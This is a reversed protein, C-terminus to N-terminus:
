SDLEALQNLNLVEVKFYYESSLIHRFYYSYHEIEVMRLDVPAQLEVDFEITELM